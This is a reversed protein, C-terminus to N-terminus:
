NKVVVMVRRMSLPSLNNFRVHHIMYELSNDINPWVITIHSFRLVYWAVMQFSFLFPLFLVNLPFSRMKENFANHRQRGVYTLYVKTIFVRSFFGCGCTANSCMLTKRCLISLNAFKFTSLNYTRIGHWYSMFGTLLVSRLDNVTHTLILTCKANVM